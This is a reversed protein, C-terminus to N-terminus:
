LAIPAKVAKMANKREPFAEEEIKKMKKYADSDEDLGVVALNPLEGGSAVKQYDNQMFNVADKAAKVSGAGLKMGTEVDYKLQLLKAQYKAREVEVEKITSEVEYHKEMANIYEVKSAEIKDDLEQLKENMDIDGNAVMDDLNSGFLEQLVKNIDALMKERQTTEPVFDNGMFIKGLFNDIKDDKSMADKFIAKYLKNKRRANLKPIPKGELSNGSEDFTEQPYVGALLIKVFDYNRIIKRKGEPTKFIPAFEEPVNGPGLTKYLVHFYNNIHYGRLQADKDEAFKTAYRLDTAVGTWQFNDTAETGNMFKKEDLDKFLPYIYDLEAGTKGQKKDVQNKLNQERAYMDYEYIQEDMARDYIGLARAITFDMAAMKNRKENERKIGNKTMGKSEEQSVPLYKELKFGGRQVNQMAIQRVTDKAMCDSREKRADDLKRQMVEQKKYLQDKYEDLASVYRSIKTFADDAVKEIRKQLAAKEEESTLYVYEESQAKQLSLEELIAWANKAEEGLVKAAAESMELKKEDVKKLDKSDRIEQVIEQGLEKASLRMGEFHWGQMLGEANMERWARGLFPQVNIEKSCLEVKFLTGKWVFFKVSSSLNVEGKLKINVGGDLNLDKTQKIKGDRLGLATDAEAEVGIGASLESGVKLDVKVSGLIGPTLALGASMDLKAEGNIEAKGALNMSEGPEIDDGFSKGRNLEASLSGGISVSPSICIEFALPGFIPICLGDGMLNQVTESFLKPKDAKKQDEFSVKLYGTPYDGEVDLFGLFKSVGFGGLSKKGPAAHIGGQDISSVASTNAFTGHINKGFLKKAKGEDSQEKDQEKDQEEEEDEDEDQSAKKGLDIRIKKATLQSGKISVGELVITAVIYKEIIKNDTFSLEIPDDFNVYLKGTLDVFFDQMTDGAEKPKTKGKLERKNFLPITYPIENFRFKAKGIQGKYKDAVTVVQSEAEEMRVFGDETLDGPEFGKWEWQPEPEPQERPENLSELVQEASINEAEQKDLQVNQKEVTHLGTEDLETVCEKQVKQKTFNLTTKWFKLKPDRDNKNKVYEGQDLAINIGTLSEIKIPGRLYASIETDNTQIPAQEPEQEQELEPEAQQLNAPEMGPASIEDMIFHDAIINMVALQAKVVAVPLNTIAIEVSGGLATFVVGKREKTNYASVQATDPIVAVGEQLPLRGPELTYQETFGGPELHPYKLSANGNYVQFLQTEWAGNDPVKDQAEQGQEPAAPIKGNDFDNSNTAEIKEKLDAQEHM